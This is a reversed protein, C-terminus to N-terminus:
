QLSAHAADWIQGSPTHLRLFISAVTRGGADFCTASCRRDVRVIAVLHMCATLASKGDGIVGLSESLVGDLGGDDGTSVM